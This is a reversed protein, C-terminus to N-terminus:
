EQYKSRMPYLSTPNWEYLIQANIRGVLSLIHPHCSIEIAMHQCSLSAQYSNLMYLIQYANLLILSIHSDNVNIQERTLYLTYLNLLLAKTRVFWLIALTRYWFISYFLWIYWLLFTQIHVLISSCKM